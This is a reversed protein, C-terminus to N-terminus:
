LDFNFLLPASPFLHEQHSASLIELHSSFSYLTFQPTNHRPSETKFYKRESNRYDGFIKYSSLTQQVAADSKQTLTGVASVM